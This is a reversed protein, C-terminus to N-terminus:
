EDYKNELDYILGCAQKDLDANNDMPEYELLKMRKRSVRVFRIKVNTNAQKKDLVAKKLKPALEWLAVTFCKLPLNLRVFEDRQMLPEDHDRLVIAAFDIYGGKAYRFPKAKFYSILEFDYTTGDKLSDWLLYQKMGIFDAPHKDVYVM